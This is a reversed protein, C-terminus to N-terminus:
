ATAQETAKEDAKDNLNVIAKKLSYASGGVAISDIGGDPHQIGVDYIDYQTDTTAVREVLRAKLQTGPIRFQMLIVAYFLAWM